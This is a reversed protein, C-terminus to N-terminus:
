NQSHCLSTMSHWVCYHNKLPLVQECLLLSCYSIELALRKYQGPSRHCQLFFVYNNQILWQFGYALSWLRGGILKPWIQVLSKSTCRGNGIKQTMQHFIFYYKRPDQCNEQDSCTAYRYCFTYMFDIVRTIDTVKGVDSVELYFM